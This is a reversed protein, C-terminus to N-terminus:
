YPNENGSTSARDGPDAVLELLEAASADRNDIWWGARDIRKAPTLVREDFEDESLEGSQVLDDYVSRFLNYRSTM